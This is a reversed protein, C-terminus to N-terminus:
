RHAFGNEVMYSLAPCYYAGYMVRKEKKGKLLGLLQKAWQQKHFVRMNRRYDTVNSCDQLFVYFSRILRLNVNDRVLNFGGKCKLELQDFLEELVNHHVTLQLANMRFKGARYFDMMWYEYDAYPLEVFGDVNLMYSLVFCLDEQYFLNEDFRINEGDVVDKRFRKAVPYCYLYNMEPTNWLMPMEMMSIYKAQKPVKFNVCGDKIHKLGTVVLDSNKSMLHELCTESILDDSDVFTLFEGCAEDIGRNRASSVGGNEKHFVRIRDDKEAYADCVAGSGDTSGDDVLLLEFDTFSQKLVSEICRPLCQGSNYVPVIVSIEPM